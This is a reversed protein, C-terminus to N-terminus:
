NLPTMEVWSENYRCKTIYGKRGWHNITSYPTGSQSINSEWWETTGQRMFAKFEFWDGATGTMNVNFKWWHLGMTNEPDQGYGDTAYYRPTGWSSPWVNCTWDLASESGWDLSADAAKIAATTANLTNLYTIPESMSSYVSPVLGEDHGGKIFIDQGVVTEKYMFVVTRVNGSPPPTTSKKWVAYNNGSAALTWGTGPTWSGPGIKMATNGNIIAAYKTSDAAQIAVTSTSTIGQDKRIQILTKIADHLGWDYYHVWYVMPIGPHTLIYCYGEMVKDSPFPWHNQGGTGGTSPGTDHNDLFTVAKAPWWGILGPPANNSDKLRWYQGQVAVQLIGKTTFDFAASRQGTANIWDCLQQRHPNYNDINLDTWLEGISIWPSTSANYTGVYTGAYGKVYDYRWGDYGIYSKLWNMWDIISQRVYAQTHDIDRAAGYGDGTDYNGTAGTWEDGRCVSDSGWVPDTFDAWNATGVRHNIVIDAIAKVNNAHLSAIATKLKAETGYASSQIYLRNPLYGEDSAAASSPPLWVGDFKSAGIDSAKSNLVDWWTTSMHSEWHFGQLLVATSGGDLVGASLVNVFMLSCLIGIVFTLVKKM